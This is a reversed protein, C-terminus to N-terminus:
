GVCQRRSNYKAKTQEAECASRTKDPTPETQCAICQWPIVAGLVPNTKREGDRSGLSYPEAKMIRNSGKVSRYNVTELSCGKFYSRLAPYIATVDGDDGSSGKVLTINMYDTITSLIDM